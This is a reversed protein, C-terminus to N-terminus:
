ISARTDPGVAPVERYQPKKEHCYRIDGRFHRVNLYSALQIINRISCMTATCSSYYFSIM